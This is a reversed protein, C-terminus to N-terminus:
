SGRLLEALSFFMQNSSKSQLRKTSIQPIQHTRHTHTHTHTTHTHTHTSGPMPSKRVMEGEKRGLSKSNRGTKIRMKQQQATIGSPGNWLFITCCGWKQWFCGQFCLGSRRWTQWFPGKTASSAIMRTEHFNKQPAPLSLCHGTHNGTSLTPTLCNYAKASHHHGSDCGPRFSEVNEEWASVAVSSVTNQSSVIPLSFLFDPLVDHSCQYKDAFPKFSLDFHQVPLLLHSDFLINSVSKSLVLFAQYCQTVGQNLSGVAHTSM